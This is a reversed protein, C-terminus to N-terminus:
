KEALVLRRGPPGPVLVVERFQGGLAAIFAEITYVRHGPLPDPAYPNQCEPEFGIFETLLYKTSYASLVRALDAAHLWPPGLMLHHSIALAIVLEASFRRQAPVRERETAGALALPSCIDSVCPTISLSESDASAFLRNVCTEDTDVALARIGKTAALRSYWGTNCALDLMSAPAMTELIRAAAFNKYPLRGEWEGSPLQRPYYHSWFSDTAPLDLAAADEALRVYVAPQHSTAAPEAALRAARALEPFGRRAALADGQALLDRLTASLGTACLYLPLLFFDALQLSVLAATCPGVNAIAGPRVYVPRCGRVPLMFEPRVSELTLGREALDALLRLIAVTASQWQRGCWEAPALLVPIGALELTVSGHRMEVEAFEALTSNRMLSDLVGERWL